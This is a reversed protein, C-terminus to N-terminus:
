TSGPLLKNLNSRRISDPLMSVDLPALDSARLFDGLTTGTARGDINKPGVGSLLDDLNVIRLDTSFRTVGSTNPATAHLHCTSFMMVDGMCGAIRIEGQTEIPQRPLPHPRQEATVQQAAAFRSNAVWEDYDFSDSGNEVARDFYDVFMSMANQGVVPFVPIWMNVLQRPHAYWTDRHAKYAYSVGSTLFNDSPVVRLRPLDFYTQELDCGLEAILPQCLVKTKVANTFGSKLPSVRRIFNEVDLEFQAREPDLGDFAERVMDGAHLCLARSAELNTYLYFDGAFIQGRREEDPDHRNLYVTVM